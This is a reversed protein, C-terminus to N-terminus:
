RSPSISQRTLRKKKSTLGLRHLARLVCSRHMDLDPFAARLKDSLQYTSQLPDRELEAELAALHVPQLKRPRGGRAPEAEDERWAAYKRTVRSVTSASVGCKAAAERISLGELAVAEVIRKHQELRLRQM